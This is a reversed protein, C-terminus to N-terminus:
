FVQQIVGAGDGVVAWFRKSVEIAQEKSEVEVLAFGVVAEKAESFPGDTVTIKGGSSRIQTARPDLGGTAILVGAKTMEDIFKGMEAFLSEDPNQDTETTMMVFRM